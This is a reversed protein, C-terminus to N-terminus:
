RERTILVIPTADFSFNDRIENELYRVYSFHILDKDNVFVVFTPPRTSVQSVYYIKGQRGKDSRPQNRMVAQSIVDNLVGTPVRLNYNENALYILDLLNNLRQGTLASLFIIPAYDVFPLQRRIEYEYENITNNSKDILDWKNVAIILAKGQDHAYGVIKSDQESVGEVADIIAVCVDSRDVAALTRVVSYREINDSIRSKRRLGATDIFNYVTDKYTFESDITDRTTGAVNSVISRDQGIIKNIMSSKGVNPKGIFAVDIRDEDEQDQSDEPFYSVVKDLLDGLGLNNEASVMVPEGFGLEYYDYINDMVGKIDAKNVALVVDRGSKLLLNGIQLDIPGLGDKGDVLFIIVNAHDIAIDAQTMIDEMFVDETNTPDLGGTDIISFNHNLWSADAYIRDRTVGPTDETISIRRRAIKNFLTSKGVNPKGVICVVNKKM